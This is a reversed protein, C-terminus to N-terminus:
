VTAYAVVLIWITGYIPVFSLTLYVYILAVGIIIGPISIPVFALLDLVKRGRAKSRVVVWSIVASLLTVATAAVAAVIVTNLAAEGIRRNEFVAAHNSWTALKMAAASFGTLYPMMSTWLLVALPALVAVAFYLGAFALAAYRWRGLRFARPRYSKGGIVAFRAMRRTTRQYLLGLALLVVLFVAALASIEGYLPLGSPTENGWYYIQSSLVFIRVPMGITGPIDFVVFSAVSIFIAASALAPAMLPLFVKWIVRGPGAGSASAADELAPDMNRFAPALILFTTPVVAIAEVFIMGAMSYIDFPAHALGFASKLIDNFFGTRPSLLMIWAIALLLPPTAMPLIVLGRVLGRAPMDTREVLWALLGGLVLGLLVSGGVFIVTNAVMGLLAPDAYVKAYNALTFGPNWPLGGPRFSSLVLFGLPVLVVFALVAGLGMAPGWRRVAGGRLGAILPAAEPGFRGARHAAVRRGDVRDKGNQRQLRHSPPRM